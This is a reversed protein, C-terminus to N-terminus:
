RARGHGLPPILDGTAIDEPEFAACAHAVRALAQGFTICAGLEVCSGFRLFIQAIRRQM